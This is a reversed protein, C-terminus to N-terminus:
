KGGGNGSSVKVKAYRIVKGNMTYGKQLEEIIIDEPQESEAKLLVEHKYPDFKQGLSKIHEVHEEHLIKHLNKSIMEIGKRAEEPVGKLTAMAREFDDIVLLLKVVLKESATGAYDKREKEVRKCYNEFEAQLRKLHETYDAVTAQAKALEAKLQEAETTEVTKEKM